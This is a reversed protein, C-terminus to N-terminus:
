RADSSLSREDRTFVDVLVHDPAARVFAGSPIRVAERFTYGEAVLGRLSHESRNGRELAGALAAHGRPGLAILDPPAERLHRRLRATNLVGREAAEASPMGAFYSFFSYELGPVVRCGAEYALTTEMTLITCSPGARARLERAVSRLHTFSSPGSGAWAGWHMPLAVLALAFLISVGGRVLTRGRGPALQKTTHVAAIAIAPTLLASATVFYTLFGARLMLHPAVSALALVLLVAQTSLPEGLPRHTDPRWGSRWRWLVSGAVAVALPVIPFFSTEPSLLVAFKAFAAELAGGAAGSGSGGGIGREGRGLQATFVHFLADRPAALMPAFLFLAQVGVIAAVRALRAPTARLRWAVWALVLLLSLGETLRAGVAWLFLSPALAAFRARELPLALAATGAMVLPTALSQTRVTVAVWLAPLNVISLLLALAAGPTGAHRRAIWVGSAVGLAGFALSLVRGVVVGHGFLTTALGYIWPVVPGQSFPFDRYLWQGEWVLRGANLYVGEDITSRAELLMAIALGLYALALAAVASAGLRRAGRGDAPGQTASPRRM